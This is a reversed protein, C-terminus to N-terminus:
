ADILAKKRYGTRDVLTQPRPLGWIYLEAWRFRLFGVPKQRPLRRVKGYITETKPAPSTKLDKRNTYDKLYSDWDPTHGQIDLVQEIIRKAEAENWVFLKLRYGRHSDHYLWTEKGRKIRFGGNLAFNTRIRQAIRRADVPTITKETENMLRFTIETRIPKYGEEVGDNEEQFYLKIQPHYKFSEQYDQIPTGFMPTQLSAAKEFTFYYLFMRGLTVQIPDNDKHTLAHRMAARTTTVSPEWNEDGLDQFDERIQKNLYRRIVSQLHEVENFDSPIAM